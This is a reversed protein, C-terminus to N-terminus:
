NFSLFNEQHLDGIELSCIRKEFFRLFVKGNSYVDYMDGSEKSVEFNYNELIKDKAREFQEILREFCLKIYSISALEKLEQPHKEKLDYKNENIYKLYKDLQYYVDGITGGDIDDMPYWGFDSNEFEYPEENGNIMKGLGFIQPMSETIFKYKEGEFYDKYLEELEKKLETLNEKNEEYYKELMSKNYIGGWKIQPIIEDGEKWGDKKSLNVFPQGNAKNVQVKYTKVM